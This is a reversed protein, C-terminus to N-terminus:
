WGRILSRALKGSETLDAESWPGNANAGPQLISAGEEKDNLAWNLHTLQNRRLFNMWENVSEIDVEGDGDANVSGWETVMLAVGNDLAAAARDRLEQQHTGAYFHLAYAINEFADIPDASAEDVRQSWFPTGVVILNDPDNARIAEIVALAYPKVVESWSVRLPENYIEYIVNPEGAYRRSMQDFFEIAEPLHDEAHHSHWDILVYLGHDIAADIVRIARQTNSEPNALYGGRGDVGVAARVIGAQWDEAITEIAGANYFREAGWGDNSWFLSPGAFSVPSGHQNVIANGQVRLAGHRGVPTEPGTQSRSCSAHLAVIGALALAAIPFFHSRTM